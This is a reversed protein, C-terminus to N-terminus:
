EEHRSGDCLPHKCNPCVWAETSVEWAQVADGYLYGLSLRADEETTFIGRTVYGCCEETVVAWVKM